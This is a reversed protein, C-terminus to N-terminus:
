LKKYRNLMKNYLALHDNIYKGRDFHLKAFAAIKDPDFRNRSSLFEEIAMCFSKATVEKALVGTEFPVIYDKQGGVPFGIVPTGCALAELMVNPLNDERATTVFADASAYILALKEEDSIPGFATYDIKEPPQLVGRGVSILRISINSKLLELAELLLDIGKRYNDLNESVCLLVLGETDQGLKQRAVRREVPRFLGLDIGNPISNIAFRGFAANKIAEDGIWKSLANICLYEIGTLAKTKIHLSQLDLQSLQPNRMQDGGYHFIGMFPNMDHLTWVIHKGRLKRFFSPYNLFGAVWHLHVVDADLVV